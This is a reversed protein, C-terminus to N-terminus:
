NDDKGYAAVFMGGSGDGVWRGGGHYAQEGESPCWDDSGGLDDAYSYGSSSDSRVRELDNSLSRQMELRSAFGSENQGASGMHSIPCTEGKKCGGPRAEHRLKEMSSYFRATEDRARQEDQWTRDQRREHSDRVKHPVAFRNSPGPGHDRRPPSVQRKRSFQEEEDSDAFFRMRVGM